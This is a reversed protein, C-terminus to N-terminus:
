EMNTILLTGVAGRGDGKSNVSRREELEYIQAWDGYLQRTYETDANFAVFKAGRKGADHLAVALRHQDKFDFGHSSYDSFTGDYPPDVFLLSGKKARGIPVEFDRQMIQAGRLADAVEKLELYTPMSKQKKGYPVNFQGSKNKRHIGNFSLRNLYITKAAISLATKAASERVRYYSEEDTGQDELISLYNALSETEDRIAYYTYILDPEADAILMNELGLFLAMAGGGVFPEIYQDAKLAEEFFDEGHEKVFWSKGGVWRLLPACRAPRAPVIKLNPRTM